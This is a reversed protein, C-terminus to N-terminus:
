PTRWPGGTEMEAKNGGCHGDALVHGSSFDVYGSHSMSHLLDDLPAMAGLLCTAKCATRRPSGSSDQKQGRRTTVPWSSTMSPPEVASNTQTV